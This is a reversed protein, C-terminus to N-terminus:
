ISMSFWHCFKNGAGYHSPGDAKLAPNRAEVAIPGLGKVDYQAASFQLPKLTELMRTM